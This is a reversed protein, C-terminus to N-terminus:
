EKIAIYVNSGAQVVDTHTETSIQVSRPAVILDMNGTGKDEVEYIDYGMMSLVPNVYLQDSQIQIAGLVFFFVVLIFWNEWLAYDISVFPFIYAVLYSTLLDNRRRVSDFHKPAPEESTRLKLVKNLVYFSAVSITIFFVASYPVNFGYVAVTLDRTIVAMIAYFPIYSSFFLGIKVWQRFERM